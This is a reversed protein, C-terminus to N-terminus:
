SLKGVMWAPPRLLELLEEVGAPSLLDLPLVRKGANLQAFHAPSGTRLGDPRGPKELKVVEAGLDGLLRAALPAAWLGGLEVVRVGELPGPGGARGRPRGATAPGATRRPGRPAGRAAGRGLAAYPRAAARLAARGAGAAAAVAEWLREAGGRRDAGMLPALADGAGDSRMEVDDIAGPDIGAWELQRLAVGHLAQPSMMLMSPAM